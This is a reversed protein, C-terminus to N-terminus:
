NNKINYLPKYTDIYHQEKDKHDNCAELIKFTINRHKQLKTYFNPTSSIFPNKIYYKHDSIRRKYQQSEGVYLCTDGEFIGYVGKYKGNNKTRYQYNCKNCIYDCNNSLSQNWNTGIILKTNCKICTKM